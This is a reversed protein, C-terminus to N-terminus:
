KYGLLNLTERHNFGINRPLKKFCKIEATDGVAKSPWAKESFAQGKQDQKITYQYVLDVVHGRPDGDIDDFVGVLLRKVKEVKTEIETGLEEKAVRKACDMLAEGKLVFSGPLHWNGAFPQKKRKTLLVEKIPLKRFKGNEREILLNVAPRPAYKFSELFKKYPLKKPKM